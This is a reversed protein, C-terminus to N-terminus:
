PISRLLRRLHQDVSDEALKGESFQRALALITISLFGSLGAVDEISPDSEASLEAKIESRILGEIEPTTQALTTLLLATEPEEVAVSLIMKLCAKLRTRGRPQESHLHDFSAKIDGAVELVVAELLGEVDEFYKYFSTRGVGAEACVAMVNVGAKGHLGVLRRGAVLLSARTRHAKPTLYAPDSHMVLRNSQDM